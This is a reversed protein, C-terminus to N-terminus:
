NDHCLDGLEGGRQKATELCAKTTNVEHFWIGRWAPYLYARIPNAVRCISNSIQSTKKHQKRTCQIQTSPCPVRRHSIFSTVQKLRKTAKHLVPSFWWSHQSSKEIHMHIKAWYTYSNREAKSKGEGEHASLQMNAMEKPLQELLAEEPGHTPWLNPHVPARTTKGGSEEKNGRGEM